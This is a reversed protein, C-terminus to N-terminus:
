SHASGCNVPDEQVRPPHPPNGASPGLNFRGIKATESSSGVYILGVVELQSVTGHMRRDLVANELDNYL